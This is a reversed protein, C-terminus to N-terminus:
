TSVAGHGLMKGYKMSIRCFIFSFYHERCGLKILSISRSTGYFVLIGVLFTVLIKLILGIATSCIKIRGFLTFLTLDISMSISIFMDELM